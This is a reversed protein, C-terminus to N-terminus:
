GALPKRAVWTSARYLTQMMSEDDQIYPAPRDTERAEVVFGVREVLAMVLNPATDLFFVTAVVDYTARRAEDGYLCLFDAACMSMTGPRAAPSSSSSPVAALATGPHLDPVAYRRLHNERTRHNSFTHVWPFITFQGATKTHNLIFDSALLQHYSIENGEVDCGARCLEFVLRGLGAGPVLVSLNAGSDNGSSSSSLRARQSEVAAFVPSYSAHRESAGAATWDRFFQRLTSRAKDIDSHKAIGVWERALAPEDPSASAAADPNALGFSKIGHHAIARALQANADIAEDTRDLTELFNFPPAALMQWQAQPLAYFSQRRLHTVNFHAVKAYQLYSDLACCVVKKEEPDEFMEGTQDWSGDEAAAMVVGQDDMNGIEDLISFVEESSIGITDMFELNTTPAPLSAWLVPTEEAMVGDDLGRQLGGEEEVGAVAELTSGAASLSGAISDDLGPLTLTQLGRADTRAALERCLCELQTLDAKRTAAVKNGKAMMDDMISHAAQSHGRADEAVSPFLADAMTLHIAASYVFELDFVLFVELLYEEDTLIQLTKVASKIGTSILSTTTSLFPEWDKDGHEPSNLRDQLVFLLLPRTAVMVCQHYLLSIHWIGKPMTDVSNKFKQAIVEEIDQAHGALTRLISGTIELFPGLQTQDTQYISSLIHSLLQSLKVQLVVATDEQSNEGPVSLHTTIGSDQISMPLGLSTSFQRDMIYLTWWLNRCRKVMQVGLEKEPLPTHLGELQAIRIAHGLYVHASERHDIAYFYLGALATVEIALISDRRFVAPDPMLSMARTFYCAGLPDKSARSRSVFAKGFALMLLYQVFWFRHQTAVARAEGDYFEHMRSLFSADEFFRYARGLHFKVANFLYIAYDMSPLGTIDPADSSAPKWHLPYIKGDYVDVSGEESDPYLKEKMLFRLRVTFSWTSWPALWIWGQGNPHKNKIIKSPLSFRQSTLGASNLVSVLPRPSLPEEQEQEPKPTEQLHREPHMRGRVLAPTETFDLDDDDVDFVLQCAEAIHRRRRPGGEAALPPSVQRQARFPTFQPPRALTSGSP